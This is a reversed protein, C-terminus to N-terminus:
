TIILEEEEPSKLCLFVFINGDEQLETAGVFGIEEGLNGCIVPKGGLLLTLQESNMKSYELPTHLRFYVEPVVKKSGM